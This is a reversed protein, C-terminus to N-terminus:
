GRGGGRYLRLTQETVDEWNYKSCIFGASGRKLREAQERNECLERIRGALAFADGRPFLIGHDEVVGACEPIDSVVCCNGYSMAELLTLPMGELDSPQVYAYANSYLEALIEGQVFGTFLVREDGAAKKKIREVYAETDSAGGAIVLRKETHVKRYAEILCDLGKEPVLRGVFLFYEGARLGYKEAILRVPRQKPREVGNPILYTERGYTEKFYRGTEQSLVIIADAFRVAMREGAMIYMRAFRGWKARRHDLGHITAICRKGFLRPLWIMACPGEAHFHVADYPGLAALFAASVSATMAALGKRDITCVSRLRVGKWERREKEGFEEGCTHHGRRNYCTVLHGDRAMRSALEGVVVEIGGERSPVRKHGLMAIRLYEKECSGARRGKAMRCLALFAYAARLRNRKILSVAAQTKPTLGAFAAQEMHRKFVPQGIYAGLSGCSSFEGQRVLEEMMWFALALGYRHLQSDFDPLVGCFDKEMKELNELLLAERGLAFHDARKTMAGERQRYFYAPNQSFYVSKAALYLPITCLLDEGYSIRPDVAMQPKLLTERRIAKGWLNSHVHRMDKGMLLRAYLCDRMKKKDYFGAPVPEGDLTKRDAYVRCAAFVALDAGTEELIGQAWELMHPDLWDDGDVYVIYDGRSALLGAQRASVLGGNEKHIVKVRSDAKGYSDCIDPCNDPSGDDVLICEFDPCTQSLISDVCQRVYAAVQYIPVIVSFYPRM